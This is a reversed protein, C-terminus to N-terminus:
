KKFKGDVDTTDLRLSWFVMLQYLLTRTKLHDENTVSGRLFFTHIITIVSWCITSTSHFHRGICIANSTGLVWHLVGPPIVSTSIKAKCKLNKFGSV